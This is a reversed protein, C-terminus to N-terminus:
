APLPQTHGPSVPMDLPVRLRSRGEGEGAGRGVVEEGEVEEGGEGLVVMGCSFVPNM